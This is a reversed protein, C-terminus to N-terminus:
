LAHKNQLEAHDVCLGNILWFSWLPRTPAHCYGVIINSCRNQRKEAKQVNEDDDIRESPVRGPIDTNFERGFCMWFLVAHGGKLGRPFCVRIPRVDLFRGDTLIVDTLVPGLVPGSM